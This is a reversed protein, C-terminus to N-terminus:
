VDTQEVEDEDPHLGAAKELEHRVEAVDDTYTLEEAAAQKSEKPPPPDALPVLCWHTCIRELCVAIRELLVNTRRMDPHLEILAM